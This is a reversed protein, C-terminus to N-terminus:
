KQCNLFELISAIYRKNEWIFFLHGGNFTIIKSGKIGAHMEEALEYPAQKDKKGHLILSPTRIEGLRSSCDYNRSARLQHMFAYYPQESKSLTARLRKLLKPLFLSSKKRIAPATSSLILSKVMDPHQLALELAIRGGMSLGLVHAKELSLFTMLAVTDKTMMEISYPIDPKDTLGAGRNDFLVVKFQESLSKILAQFIKCDTGLGAILVIPEGSGHIEYYMAIDNMKAIPM